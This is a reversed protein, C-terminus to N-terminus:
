PFIFFCSIGSDRSSHGWLFQALMLLMRPFNATINIIYHESVFFRSIRGSTLTLTFTISHVVGGDWSSDVCWIKSEQMLYYLLYAGSVILRSVLDNTLIM